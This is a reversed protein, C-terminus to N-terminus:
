VCNVQQTADLKGRKKKGKLTVDDFDLAKEAAPTVDSERAAEM